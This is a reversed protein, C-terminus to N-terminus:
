ATEHQRRHEAAARCIAVTLQVLLVLAYGIAIAAMVPLVIWATLLWGIPGMSVWGGGRSSAGIRM